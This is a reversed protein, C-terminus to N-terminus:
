KQNTDSLTLEKKKTLGMREKLDRLSNFDQRFFVGVGQTYPANFNILDDANSRNYAKVRFRGDKSVKYETYFEGVVNNANTATTSATAGTVGVNTEVLLRDNFMTKSFMLQIEENSYTDKARYNFGISVDKSLQSLWNSVQNSLLESASAVAGAGADFKGVSSTNVSPPLFQNFVLLGFMQRNVEQESNLVTRVMSEITPDQARVGIEYNISPNMLKNSLNLKCDVPVRRQFTSDQILNVLSGTFVTYVATMDLNADYPDGSWTIRGGQNIQFRKNILNQLTFLYTGKDITFTGYMNFDGITNIDMRLNGTGSGSIVDGIKEDFILNIEADPTMDLSMNLRLGSLNVTGQHEIEVTETKPKVFTIFDATTVESATNLPINIVTGKNPSVAIDMVMDDISGSFRAYGSANAKGYYLSNQVLTTNLMQFNKPFVEVDFRFDTFFTHTIKGKVIAEHSNEDVLTIGNLDFENKRINVKSSFNYRTNLYDITAAAKRFDAYGEVEPEELTGTIRLDASVKGRVNRVVGEMWQELTHLYFNDATVHFDINNEKKKLFYRGEIDFVRATGRDIAVDLWLEDSQDEYDTKVKALGLTDGNVCLQAVQLDTELRIDDFVDKFQALGSAQGSLEIANARLADNLHSLQFNQLELDIMKLSDNSIWGNLMLSEDSRAIGFDSFHIGHPLYSILNRAPMSWVMGDITLFSSDVVFTFSDVAMFDFHGIWRLRNDMSDLDSLRLRYDIRNNDVEAKLDLEPIYGNKSYYLTDAYVNINMSSGQASFETTLDLWRATKYRLEPADLHIDFSKQAAHVAGYLRTAPDFYFQPFFNETVVATNKLEVSFTFEETTSAGKIPLLVNPLYRPIIERFAAPLKAFEFYGNFSADLIDSSLLLSRQGNDLRDADLRVEKLYYMKKDVQLFTNLIDVTGSLDDLKNGVLRSNVSTKLSYPEELQIVNLKELQLKNITATFDFVPLKGRFDVGGDFTFDVDEEHIDVTGNFLKKAIKGKVNVNRYPYGRYVVLGVKGSLSANVDAIKFGSGEVNADMSIVGLGPTQTLLGVDFQSTNLTGKYSYKGSKNDLKLNIDSSIYGIATNINGYAVFDSFFGTFKGKFNVEGLCDLNDPLQLTKGETFPYSPIWEVDRTSTRVEEAMVDLYTDDLEPLGTIQFNGRFVSNNGWSLVANRGKFKDVTGKFDGEIELTRHLGELDTAFYSIDRFSVKSPHLNGKWKVRTIFDDFDLWDNYDLEVDGDVHSYPTTAELSLVRIETGSVKAIASLEQMEFGSKEKFKLQDIAAFISDNVFHIDHLDGYVNQVDIHSFDVGFPIPAENYDHYVFRFNDLELEKLKIKWPSATTDTTDGSSFYSTLFYLNDHEQGKQNILNFFGNTLTLKGIALRKDKTSIDDIRVGIEDFYFLTDKAPSEVYVERLSASTFFRISVRGVTIKSNTEASLYATLRNALWTQFGDTQVALFLM